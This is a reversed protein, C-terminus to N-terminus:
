RFSAALGFRYTAGFGHVGGDRGLCVRYRGAAVAAGFRSRWVADGAVAERAAGVDVEFAGALAVGASLLHSPAEGDAISTGYRVAVTGLTGLLETEGTRAEAGLLLSAGPASTATRPALFQTAAGVRVHPRAYTLGADLAWRGELRDDLRASLARLAIGGALGPVLVARAAGVSLVQAFAPINGLAEPSTETRVLDSISLRGYVASLTWGSKTRASAAAVSGSVGAEAPSHITEVALRLSPEAPGLTAAPTWLAASGERALAAPTAHTGAAVRWLDAAVASQARAGAPLLAAAAVLAAAARPIDVRSSQGAPVPTDLAIRKGLDHRPMLKPGHGLM